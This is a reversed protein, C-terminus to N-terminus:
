LKSVEDMLQGYKDEPLETLKSVGFGNLIAKIKERNEPKAREAVFARVEAITHKRAPPTNASMPENVVSAEAQAVWEPEPTTKGSTSAADTGAKKAALQAACDDVVAQIAAAMAHADEAMARAHAAMDALMKVSMMM